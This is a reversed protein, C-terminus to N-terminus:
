VLFNNEGLIGSWYGTGALPVRAQLQGEAALLELPLSAEICQSEPCLSKSLRGIGQALNNMM